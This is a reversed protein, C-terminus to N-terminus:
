NAKRLVDSHCNMMEGICKSSLIAQASIRDGTIEMMKFIVKTGFGHLLRALERKNTTLLNLKVSSGITLNSQM